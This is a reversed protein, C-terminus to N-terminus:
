FPRDATRYAGTCPWVNEVPSTAPVLGYVNQEKDGQEMSKELSKLFLPYEKLAEARMAPDAGAAKCRYNFADIFHHIYSDPFPNLMQGIATILPPDLQYTPAIQYVPGTANPLPWVRFGQSNPSVVTWTVSGDTVTTGEPSAATLLPAATGTTGFGAVILLNGNADVMNMLPNQQVVGGTVLPYYTVGAGPWVGFTLESNYKWCIQWGPPPAYSQNSSIRTLDRRWTVPWLPKPIMTNNIDVMTCDDGWAIKGNAQALQPYDQQWSNTYFVAALAANWKWNFRETILDRMTNNGLELALTLGSGSPAVRPDPIGKAMLGDLVQRFSTSSNGM